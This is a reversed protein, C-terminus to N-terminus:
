LNKLSIFDPKRKDYVTVYSFGAEKLVQYGKKSVSGVHELVHADSGVTIIEGGLERYLKLLYLDPMTDKMGRAIGSLNLEIGKGREIVKKFIDSFEWRYKSQDVDIGLQLHFYRCPYNVHGLVDYEYEAALDYLWNLYEEYTKRYDVEHYDIEALDVDGTLNHISGIIFDLPYQEIFKLAETKNIQPQGYEAGILVKLRGRYEERIQALENYLSKCDLIYEYPKDTYLDMHDTVAIEYLGREIATDCIERLECSGDFSYKSHMHYDVLYM